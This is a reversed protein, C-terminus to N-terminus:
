SQDLSKVRRVVLTAVIIVVIELGVLAWQAPAEGEVLALGVLRSTLAGVTLWGIASAAFGWWPKWPRLNWLALGIGLVAGGPIRQDVLEFPTLEATTSYFSELGGILVLGVVGLILGMPRHTQQM